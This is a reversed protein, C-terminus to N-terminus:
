ELLPTTEDSPVPVAIVLLSAQRRKYFALSIVIILLLIGMFLLIYKLVGLVALPVSVKKHFM